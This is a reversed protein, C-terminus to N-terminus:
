KRTYGVVTPKGTTGSSAHIRAVRDGDAGLLLRLSVRRALGGQDHVPLAGLRGAIELREPSRRRCRIKAHLEANNAYAHECRRSASAGAAAGRAGRPQASLIPEIAALSQIAGSM